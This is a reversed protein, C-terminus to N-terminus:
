TEINLSIYIIGVIYWGSRVVMNSSTLFFAELLSTLNQLQHREREVSHELFRSTFM